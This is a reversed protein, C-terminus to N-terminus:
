KLLKGAADCAVRNLKVVLDEIAPLGNNKIIEALITDGWNRHPHTWYEFVHWFENSRAENLKFVERFSAIVQSNPTETAKGDLYAFGYHFENYGPSCRIGFKLNMSRMAPTTYFYNEPKQGDGSFSDVKELGRKKGLADMQVNVRDIISRRIETEANRLSAYALYTAGTPDQTIHNIIEQNM